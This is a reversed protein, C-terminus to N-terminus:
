PALSWEANSRPCSRWIAERHHRAPRAKKWRARTRRASLSGSTLWKRSVRNPHLFIEPQEILVARYKGEIESARWFLTNPVNELPSLPPYEDLFGSLKTQIQSLGSVTLFVAIALTPLYKFRMNLGENANNSLCKETLVGITESVRM